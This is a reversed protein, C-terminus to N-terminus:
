EIPIKVSKAVLKDMEKLLDLTYKWQYIIIGKKSIAVEIGLFYKLDGLDNIAFRKGLYYKLNNDNRKLWYRFYYILSSLFLFVGTVLWDLLHCLCCYLLSIVSFCFIVFHYWCLFKIIWEKSKLSFWAHGQLCYFPLSSVKNVQPDWGAIIDSIQVLSYNVHLYFFIM